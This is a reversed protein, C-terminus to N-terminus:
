GTAEETPSGAVAKFPRSESPAGLHRRLKKRARECLTRVASPTTELERSVFRLSSGNLCHSRFAQLQRKPLLHLLRDVEESSEVTEITWEVIVGPPDAGHVRWRQEIELRRIRNLIIRRLTTHLWRALLRTDGSCERDEGGCRVGSLPWSSVLRTLSDHALDAAEFRVVSQSSRKAIAELWGRSLADDVVSQLLRCSQGARCGRRIPASRDPAAESETTDKPPISM